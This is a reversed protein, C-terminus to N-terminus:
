AIADEIEAVRLKTLNNLAYSRTKFADCIEAYEDYIAKVQILIEEIYTYEEHGEVYKNKMTDTLAYQSKQLTSLLYARKRRLEIEFFRVVEHLEVKRQSYYLQWSAHERNAEGLSKGKIRLNEEAEERAELYPELVIGINKYKEGLRAKLSM